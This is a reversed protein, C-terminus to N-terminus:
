GRLDRRRGLGLWSVGLAFLLSGAPEPIAFGRVAIVRNTAGFTSFLFDGTVPDIFAGEAGVLGTIFDQRSAVLPLGDADLTYASIRNASYESILMSADTFVPSDTPVYIMGEPGGGPTAELVVNTVNYTGMGDAVLSSSYLIGANYSGMLLDGAQGFGSPVFQLAGVSPSVGLPTLDIIKDPATSGPKIQGLLNGSYSSYFLVGGPGYVLGGDIGPSTSFLSATGTFGTIHSNADRIVGISYVAGAANNASGGLLLTNPDGALLTLGGYNGPVGPASGLDIYSYDSAFAPAILQAPSTATVAFGVCALAVVKVSFRFRPPIM